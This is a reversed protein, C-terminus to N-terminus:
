WPFSSLTRLTSFPHHSTEKRTTRSKVQSMRGYSSMGESVSRATCFKDDPDKIGM